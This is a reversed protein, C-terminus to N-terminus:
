QICPVVQLKGELKLCLPRAVRTYRVSESLRMMAIDKTATLHGPHNVIQSVPIQYRSQENPDSINYAGIYVSFRPLLPTPSSFRGCSFM